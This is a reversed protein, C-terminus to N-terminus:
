QMGAVPATGPIPPPSFARQGNVFPTALVAGLGVTWALYEIILGASVFAAAAPGMFSPGLALVHGIVTFSAILALGLMADLFPVAPHGRSARLRNGVQGAVGAFGALWVVVFGALLFPVLVLLPIGVISLVLAVSAIVLAPVFLLQVIVGLFGSALPARAARHQITRIWMPAVLALLGIGIATLTLRFLTAGFGFWAWWARDLSWWDAMTIRIAPWSASVRHVEGFLRASDDTRVEGGVATVDGWIVATPGIIVDGGIVVVDDDVRGELTAAGGIVVIASTAVQDAPLHYSKGVRIQVGHRRYDDRAWDQASAPLGSLACCLITGVLLKTHM